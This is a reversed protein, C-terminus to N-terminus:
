KKKESSIIQERLQSRLHRFRITNEAVGTLQKEKERAAQIVKSINPIAAVSSAAAKTLTEPTDKDDSQYQSAAKAYVDSRDLERVGAWTNRALEPNDRVANWHSKALREQTEPNFQVNKWDKGFEREAAAQLTSREFQYRGVGTSGPDSKFGQRKLEAQRQPLTQGYVRSKPRMQTEQWDSLEGMTMQSIPKPPKIGAVNKVGAKTPVDYAVTDYPNPRNGTEKVGLRDRIDEWEVKSYAMKHDQRDKSDELQLTQKLLAM